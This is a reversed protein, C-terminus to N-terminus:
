SAPNRGRESSRDFFNQTDTSTFYTYDAGVQFGFGSTYYLAANHMQHHAQSHNFSESINGNSHSDGTKEPSFQTTYSLNLSNDKDFKYTGGARLTHTLSRGENDTVQNVDYVQEKVTHRAIFDIYGRTYNSHLNYMFDFDIKPSTYALTVGGNGGAEKQQKYEGNVEGQLGGEGPKYGKLVLNIAAGRVHYQPPASYMVEAKEVRSAPMGKLLTILQEYTMSSPRGNLLLSVGGAGALTLVDNQEIVGPLQKLAEYANTVLRQSTLQPMDYTLRSGEVTVLPREGQVVVEQLAYDKPQLTFTGADTGTGEKKQPEYLLHQFLLRYHAPQHNLLFTGDANTITAEVFISDPTQLVVTAGDIPQRSPDTVKGTITQATATGLMTGLLLLISVLFYKKM